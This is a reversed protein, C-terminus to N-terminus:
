RIGTDYALDVQEVQGPRALTVKVPQPTGMLGTVPQATITVAGTQGVILEYTGDAATTARGIEEGTANTAVLVAGAVPRPACSPDPPSKEVPCVPGATVTGKVSPPGGALSPGPTASATAATSSAASAGSGVNAAGTCGALVLIAAAALAGLRGM